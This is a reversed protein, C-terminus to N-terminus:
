SLIYNKLTIIFPTHTDTHTHRHTHLHTCTHTHIHTFTHIHTHTHTHTHIQKCCTRSSDRFCNRCLASICFHRSFAPRGGSAYHYVEVWCLASILSIDPCHKVKLTFKVTCRPRASILHCHYKFHPSKKCWVPQVQSQRTPDNPLITILIDSYEAKLLSINSVKFVNQKCCKACSHLNCM